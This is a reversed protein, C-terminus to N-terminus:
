VGGEGVAVDEIGGDVWGESVIRSGECILFSIVMLFHQIVNCLSMVTPTQKKSSNFRRNKM